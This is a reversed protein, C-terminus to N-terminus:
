LDKLYLSLFLHLLVHHHFRLFIGKVYDPGSGLTKDSFILFCVCVGVCLLLQFWNFSLEGLNRAKRGGLLFIRRHQCDSQLYKNGEPVSM